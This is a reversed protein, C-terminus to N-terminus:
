QELTKIDGTIDFYEGKTIRDNYLARKLMIESIKGKSYLDRVVNRIEVSRPIPNGKVPAPM